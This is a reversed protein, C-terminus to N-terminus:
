EGEGEEVAQVFWEPMMEKPLMSQDTYTTMLEYAWEEWQEASWYPEETEAKMGFEELTTQRTPKVPILSPIQQSPAPAQQQAQKPQWVNPINLHQQQHQQGIKVQQGQGRSKSMDNRLKNFGQEINDAKEVKKPKYMKKRKEGITM